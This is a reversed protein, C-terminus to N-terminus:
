QKRRRRRYAAIGLGTGLLLTDVYFPNPTLGHPPYDSEYNHHADQRNSSTVVAWTASAAAMMKSWLGAVIPPVCPDHTLKDRPCFNASNAVESERGHEDAHVDVRPTEVHDDRTFGSSGIGGPAVAM